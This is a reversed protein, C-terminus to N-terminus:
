SPIENPATEPTAAHMQRAASGCIGIANELPLGCHDALAVILTGLVLPLENARIKRAEITAGCSIACQAIRDLWVRDDPSTKPPVAPPLLSLPISM